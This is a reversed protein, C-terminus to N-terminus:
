KRLLALPRAPDAIDILDVHELVWGGSRRGRPEAWYLGTTVRLTARGRFSRRQEVLRPPVNESRLKANWGSRIILLRWGTIGYITRYLDRWRQLRNWSFWVFAMAIGLVALETLGLGPTRPGTSNLVLTALGIAGLLALLAVTEIGTRRTGPRGHWRLTEGADLHGRLEALLSDDGARM